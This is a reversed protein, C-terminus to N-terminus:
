CIRGCGKRKNDAEQEMSDAADNDGAKRLCVLLESYTNSYKTDLNLSQYM